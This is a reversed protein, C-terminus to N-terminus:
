VKKQALETARELRDWNDDCVYCRIVHEEFQDKVEDFNARTM